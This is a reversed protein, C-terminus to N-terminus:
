KIKLNMTKIILWVIILSFVFYIADEYNKFGYKKILENIGLTNSLPKIIFPSLSTSAILGFAMTIKRNIRENIEADTLKIVLM